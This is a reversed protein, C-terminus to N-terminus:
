AARRACSGLRRATNKLEQRPLANRRHPCSLTCTRSSRSGSPSPCPCIDSARSPWWWSGFQYRRPTRRNCHCPPGSWWGARHTGPQLRQQTSMPVMCQEACAHGFSQNTPSRVISSTHKAMHEMFAVMVTFEARASWAATLPSTLAIPCARRFRATPFRLDQSSARKTCCTGQLQVPQSPLARQRSLCPPRM